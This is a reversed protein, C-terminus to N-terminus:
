DMDVSDRGTLRVINADYRLQLVFHARDMFSSGSGRDKKAWVASRM